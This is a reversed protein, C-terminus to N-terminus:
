LRIQLFNVFDQVTFLMDKRRVAPAVSVRRNALNKIKRDLLYM